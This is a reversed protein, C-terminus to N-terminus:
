LPNEEMEPTTQQDNVDLGNEDEDCSSTVTRRKKRAKPKKEKVEIDSSKNVNFSPLDPFANNKKESKMEADQSDMKKNNPKEVAKGNATGIEVDDGNEDFAYDEKEDIENDSEM